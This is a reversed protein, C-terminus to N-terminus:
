PCRSWSSIEFAGTASKQNHACCRAGSFAVGAACIHKACPAPPYEPFRSEPVKGCHWACDGPFDNRGATQNFPSTKAAHFLFAQRFGKESKKIQPLTEM